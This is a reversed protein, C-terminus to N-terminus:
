FVDTIDDRHFGHEALIQRIFTFGLAFLLWLIRRNSLEWEQILLILRKGDEGILV